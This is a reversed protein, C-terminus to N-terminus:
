RTGRDAASMEQSRLAHSIGEKGSRATTVEEPLAVEGIGPRLKRCVSTLDYNM